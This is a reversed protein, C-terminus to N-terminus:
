RKASKRRRPVPAADAATASLIGPIVFNRLTARRDMRADHQSALASSTAANVNSVCRKGLRAKSGACDSVDFVLDAGRQASGISQVDGERRPSVRMQDTVALRYKGLPKHRRAGGMLAVMSASFNTFSVVLPPTQRSESLL